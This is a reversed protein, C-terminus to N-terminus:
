NRWTAIFGDVDLGEPMEEFFYPMPGSQFGPVYQETAAQLRKDLPAFRQWVVELEQKSFRPGIQKEQTFDGGYGSRDPHSGFLIKYVLKSLLIVCVIRGVEGPHFHEIGARFTDEDREILARYVEEIRDCEAAYLAQHRGFIEQFQPKLHREFGETYYMGPVYSYNGGGFARYGLHITRRPKSSYNSGWHLITNTYVAGDGAKLEVPMSAPLPVSNDEQLQRNEEDTNSRRHSGPVVWLVDDDYLPVNWQLYAPHNNLLDLQLGNLPAQDIPHIDRHWRAPGHDRVPSCMMMYRHVGVDPAQMLQRCVGLTTEGLCFEVTDATDADILGEFSVLRPQGDVEWRGGPPDEPQREQAWIQRQRDVLKEYSVRLKELRDPAIAQPVIVYGNDLLQRPDVKM